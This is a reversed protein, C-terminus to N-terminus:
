KCYININVFRKFKINNKRVFVSFIKYEVSACTKTTSSQNEFKSESM